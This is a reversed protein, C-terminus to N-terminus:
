DLWGISSRGDWLSSALLQAMWVQTLGVKSSPSQLFCFSSAFIFRGLSSTLYSVLSVSCQHEWARIVKPIELYM